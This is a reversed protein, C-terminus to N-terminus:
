LSDIFFAITIIAGMLAIILLYAVTLKNKM